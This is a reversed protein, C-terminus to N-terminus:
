PAEAQDRQQELFSSAEKLLGDRKAQDEESLADWVKELWTALELEMSHAELVCPRCVILHKGYKVSFRFTNASQKHLALVGPTGRELEAQAPNKSRAFPYSTM